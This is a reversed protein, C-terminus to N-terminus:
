KDACFRVPSLLIHVEYVAMVKRLAYIGNKLAGILSLVELWYLIQIGRFFDTVLEYATTLDGETCHSGWHLCSYKLSEPVRRRIRDELGPIDKNAVFSTELDCINFKLMRRMILLCRKFMVRDTDELSTWYLNCRERDDLFDLFSQHFVRIIGGRPIDEYLVTKLDDVIIRLSTRDWGDGDSQLFDALGDFSLPNHRSTIRIIGLMRKVISLEADGKCVEDLIMTYLADLDLRSSGIDGQSLLKEMVLDSGDKRLIDIATSIWIFSGSANSALQQINPNQLWKRDVQRDNALMGLHFQTYLIIDEEANVTGLDLQSSRPSQFCRALDRSPRSTIFIKLWSMASLNAIQALCEVLELRSSDDGCEDLADIVFTYPQANYAMQMGLEETPKLFLASLQDSISIASIDVEDELTRIIHQRYPEHLRTISYALSPLVRRPDRQDPIDQNCFFSGALMNKAKLENIISTAM